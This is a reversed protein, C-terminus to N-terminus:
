KEKGRAFKNEIILEMNNVLVKLSAIRKIDRETVNTIRNHDNYDGDHVICHRREVLKEVSKLLNEPKKGAKKAANHTIKSLHFLKYLDDIVKIKQTTYKSYHKDILTRIKRYPRETNILELAFRLDFGADTLLAIISDDIKNRKIYDIFHESFCDTAYADFAAVALVIAGRLVDQPPIDGKIKLKNYLNVMENCRALTKDFKEKAKSM